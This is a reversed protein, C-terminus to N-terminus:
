KGLEQMFREYEAAQNGDPPPPPVDGQTESPPPPPPVDGISVPPPPPVNSHAFQPPPPPVPQHGWGPPPVGASGDTPPPPPVNPFGGGGMAPPPPPVNLNPPYGGTQMQPYGMQVPPANMQGMHGQGMQGVHGGGGMGFPPPPPVNVGMGMVPPPPPAFGGLNGPPPPPPMFGGGHLMGMGGHPAGMGQPPAGMGPPGPPAGVGFHSGSAMYPPRTTAKFDWTAAAAKEGAVNVKLRRGEVQAGHMSAVARQASEADSFKVFGFGRPTMDPNRVVKATEIPGCNEFIARLLGDEIHEALSGVYVKTQDVSRDGQTRGSGFGVGPGGSSPNGVGPVKDVGLESLFSQYESSMEAQAGKAAGPNNRLPCDITPHGGDGCIKCTM